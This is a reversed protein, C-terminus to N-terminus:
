AEELHRKAEHWTDFKKKHHTCAFKPIVMRDLIGVETDVGKPRGQINVPYSDKGFIIRIDKLSHAASVQM